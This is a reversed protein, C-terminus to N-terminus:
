SIHRFKGNAIDLAKNRSGDVNYAYCNDTGAKCGLYTNKYATAALISVEWFALSLSLFFTM